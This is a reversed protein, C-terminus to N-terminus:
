SSIWRCTVQHDSNPPTAVRLGRFIEPEHGISIKFKEPNKTRVTVGSGRPSQLFDGLPYSTCPPHFLGLLRTASPSVVWALLLCRVFRSVRVTKSRKKKEPPDKTQFQRQNEHRKKLSPDKAIQHTGFVSGSAVKGVLQANHSFMRKQNRYMEAGAWKVDWAAKTELAVLKMTNWWCITM